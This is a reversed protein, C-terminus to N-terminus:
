ASGVGPHLVSGAQPGSTLDAQLRVLPAGADHRKHEHQATTFGESIYFARTPIHEALTWLAWRQHGRARLRDRAQALLVHGTGTRWARPDVYLAQIEAEGPRGPDSAAHPAEVACAGIIGRSDEAVLTVRWTAPVALRATWFVTRDWVHAQPLSGDAIFERFAARWSRVHMVSIAELDGVAAPRIVQRGEVM